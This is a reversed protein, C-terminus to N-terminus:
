IDSLWKLAKKYADQFAKHQLPENKKLTALGLNNVGGSQLTSKTGTWTSLAEMAERVPNLPGPM